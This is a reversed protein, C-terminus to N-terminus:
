KIARVIEIGSFMKTYEDALSQIPTTVTLVDVVEIVIGDNEWEESFQIFPLFIIRNGEQTPQMAVQVPQKIAIVDTIEGIKGILTMGNKITILKVSM